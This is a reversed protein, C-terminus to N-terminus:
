KLEWGHISWTSATQLPTIMAPGELGKRAIVGNGYYYIPILPVEDGLHVMIDAWVGQRETSDLTGTFRDFLQDYAPSSYAAYNRGKWITRETPIQASTLNQPVDLSPTWPWLFGGPVKARREDFNAAQPPLPVPRSDVGMTQWQSSVTEIEQVNSGQGTASIEMALTRGGSDRLMGDAGTNWGAEAFLQRARAPDYPHRAYNRSLLVRYAADELFLFTDAPPTLGYQLAEAMGQRDTSHSLARRVRPDRVWPAAPERFNLWVTRIGFPVLLTLGGDPGWSDQVVVLQGADLRAGMPVMDQDGSLVGAIITNVDGVYSVLIRDIKPRGLVYGDFATGEIFSGRQWRSLRYPGVGIFETTWFPSNIFAHKDGARYLDSLLHTPLATVDRPGEGGALFSPEKWQVVLTRPDPTQMEAVLRTWSRPSAPIEPDNLIQFGLVFDEAVLPAGDHWTLNPRLKWTVEMRGDPFTKWDGNQLSPVREALRPGLNGQPDYVTLPAHFLMFHELQDFASVSGYSSIGEKPEEFGQLAIRLTRPASTAPGTGTSSSSSPGAPACGGLVLLFTLILGLGHAKMM